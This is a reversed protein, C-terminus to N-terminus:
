RLAFGIMADDVIRVYPKPTGQHPCGLVQIDQRFRFIECSALWAENKLMRVCDEDSDRHGFMHLRYLGVDVVV